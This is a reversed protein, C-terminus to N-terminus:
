FKYEKPFCIFFKKVKKSIASITHQDSAESINKLVGNKFLINIESEQLKYADNSIEGEIVLYELENEKIMYQNQIKQKLNQVRSEEFPTESVLVKFLKRKIINNSLTSLIKDSHNQWQKICALIDIDDLKTFANFVFEKKEFDSYNYNNKLFIELSDTAFININNKSLEKARKLLQILMQEACVVTKHFYVQWYMLRRAILFKEISYIGKSEVVLKDDVVNLMHIIRESGIIGEQVGSYFSDRKLYDMRDMDLQSSVLQHLFRKKYKNEFIEIAIDLQNDFEQNLKKMILVSIREHSINYSISHELAHSFPGHGIDHLLIAIEAGLAEKESIEHGKLRLSEIAKTMLYMAGIAHHFRTHYAGPYVLYSLGLQSIRRLRQFYPHEILQFIIGKPLRIFGHIPDNLIKSSEKM